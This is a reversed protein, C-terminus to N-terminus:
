FSAGITVRLGGTTVFGAVNADPKRVVWQATAVSGIFSKDNPIRLALSAFGAPSVAVAPGALGLDLWATCSPAGIVALDIPLPVDTSGVLLIALGASRGRGDVAGRLDVHLDKGIQASLNKSHLSPRMGFAGVGAVGYTRVSGYTQYEDAGVDFKDARPDGEYDVLPFGLSHRGTDRCPSNPGIKYFPLRLNPDIKRNGTGAYTMGKLVSFTIPVTGSVETGNGSFVCSEFASGSGAKVVSLGLTTNDAVTLGSARVAIDTDLVM